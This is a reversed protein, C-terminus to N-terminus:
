LSSCMLTVNRWGNLPVSYERGQKNEQVSKLSVAENNTMNFLAVHPCPVLPTRRILQFSLFFFGHHSSFSSSASFSLLWPSRTLIDLTQNQLQLFSSLSFPFYQVNISQCYFISTWTCTSKFLNESSSESQFPILEVKASNSNCHIYVYLFCIISM